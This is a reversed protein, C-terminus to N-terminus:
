KKLWEWPPIPTDIEEWLGREKSQANRQLADYGPMSGKTEAVFHWAAGKKLQEAGIDTSGVYAQVVTAHLRTTRSFLPNGKDTMRFEIYEGSRAYLTGSPDRPVIKVTKGFILKELAAKSEDFYDQKAREARQPAYIGWIVFAHLEGNIEAAFTNGNEIARPVVNCEKIPAEYHSVIRAANSKKSSTPAVEANAAVCCIVIALLSLVIKKM